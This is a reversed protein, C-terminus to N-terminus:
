NILAEPFNLKAFEGFMLSAMMDYAMAAQRETPFSGIFYIKSNKQIDAKWSDRNKRYFVGKYISTKNLSKKRNMGNQSPTALRLNEKRNDLKNGNIHDVQLKKPPQMIVRHMRFRGKSNTDRTAYGSFDLFWSWQTFYQYDEDDVLAYKGVGKKGSLFIEKM